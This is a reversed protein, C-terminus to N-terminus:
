QPTADTVAATNVGVIGYNLSEALRWARAVDRTFVYAALGYETDNALAVAEQLSGFRFAAVVPGFTEEAHVRMGPLAGSLVTASAFFGGAYPSDPPPVPGSTAAVAAGKAVADAVHARVREAAAASILPGMDTGPKAPDGVRLKRTEKIFADAFSGAHERTLETLFLGPAIANVTIHDPGIHKARSRTLYNHGAKSAAYAYNERAQIKVGAISSINIVSAQWETTGGNRLLPLLKQVVFFSAKLNLDMVNDWGAEPYEDIPAILAQGACNVLVHLADTHSKVADAFATVGESKSLDVPIGICKGPGTTTIEAAVRECNKANRACIYM